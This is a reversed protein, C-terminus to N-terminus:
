IYQYVIRFPAIECIVDQLITNVRSLRQQAELFLPQALRGFIMFVVLAIPLIPLIILTLRFNTAFLIILTGILLLLVNSGPTGSISGRVVVGGAVTFLAWLLIIFPFYELLYTHLISHMADTRFSLLFPIAFLLAWM